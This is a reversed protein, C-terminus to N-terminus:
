KQTTIRHGNDIEKESLIESNDDLVLGLISLFLFFLVVFYLSELSKLSVIRNLLNKTNQLM